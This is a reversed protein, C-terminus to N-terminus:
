SCNFYCCKEKKIQLSQRIKKRRYLKEKFIIYRTENKFFHFLTQFIVSISQTIVDNNKLPRLENCLVNESFM